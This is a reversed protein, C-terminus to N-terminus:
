AEDRSKEVWVKLKTKFVSPDFKDIFSQADPFQSTSVREVASQVDGLDDPNCSAGTISDIVTEGFGGTVNAVVKGGAAIAEVAMIGFDEEGLALYAVALEYLRALEQSTTRGLFFVPSSSSAALYKLRQLDPGEGVVVLPIRMKSALEIATDIRKYPVLRSAALLFSEPLSKALHELHQLEANTMHFSYNRYFSLDVPPYIVEVKEIGWTTQIRRAIYQSNAAVADSKSAMKRDTLRLQDLARETLFNKPFRSDLDPEWIYRAPTHVYSLKPIRSDGARKAAHHSFLHSSSLIWETESVKINRWTTSMFPLALAKSKRLPSKSLWSEEIKQNGIQNDDSDNWLTFIRADPFVECMNRLVNEAGGTKEIWDSVILGSM